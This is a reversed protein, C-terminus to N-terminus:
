TDFSWVIGIPVRLAFNVALTYPENWKLAEEAGVYRCANRGYELAPLTQVASVLFLFIMAAAAAKALEKRQEKQAVFFHIWLGVTTLTFYMHVQYHGALWALGLFFGSLIGSAVPTKGKGARFVFLIALPGWVTAHNMQPWDLSSGLGGLTYLLAATASALKSRALERCLAYFGLAAIWHPLVYFWHLAGQSLWSKRLPFWFLPLNLPDAVGPQGQGILSQGAWEYPDWLPIRLAHWESAEFQYWPLVQNACDPGHLWTYQSTLTLRWYFLTTALLLLLLPIRLHPHLRLHRM